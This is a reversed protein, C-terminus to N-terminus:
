TKQGGALTAPFHELQAMANNDVWREAGAVPRVEIGSELLAELLSRAILSAAFRGPCLHAGGGFTTVGQQSRELEFTDPNPFAEPDHNAAGWMLLVHTGEPIIIDGYRIESTAIRNLHIVPSELRLSEAVAATARTRDRRVTELAEPHKLLVYLTNAAALAATHFGDFLNGALFAGVTKPVIGAYQPDDEIDIEALDAATGDVFPCDGKALARMGAGDVLSRYAKAASDAVGRFEAKQKVSLMPSM